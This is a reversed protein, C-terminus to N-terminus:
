VFFLIWAQRKACTDVFQGPVYHSAVLPTGLPLLADQSARFEMLKKKPPVGAKRFQGLVPKIVQCLSRSWHICYLSFFFFYEM